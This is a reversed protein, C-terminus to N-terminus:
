GFVGAGAAAHQGDIEGMLAGIMDARTLKCARSKVLIRFRGYVLPSLVLGASPSRFSWSMRREDSSQADVQQIYINAPSSSVSPQFSPVGVEQEAPRISIVQQSAM